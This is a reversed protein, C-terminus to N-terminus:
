HFLHENAEYDAVAAHFSRSATQKANFEELATETAEVLRAEFLPLDNCEAFNCLEIMHEIVWDPLQNLRSNTNKCKFDKAM